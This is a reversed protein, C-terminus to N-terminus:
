LLIEVMISMLVIMYKPLIIGQIDKKM